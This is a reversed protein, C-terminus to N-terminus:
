YMFPKKSNFSKFSENVSERYKGEKALEVAPKRIVQEKEACNSSCYKSTDYEWDGIKMGCSKCKHYKEGCIVCTKNNLSM